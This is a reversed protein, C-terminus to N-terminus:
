LLGDAAKGGARSPGRAVHAVFCEAAGHDHGRLVGFLRRLVGFHYEGIARAGRTECVRRGFGIVTSETGGNGGQRTTVRGLSGPFGRPFRELFFSRASRCGM